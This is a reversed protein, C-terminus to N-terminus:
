AIGRQARCRLVRLGLLGVAGLSLLALTSPEPVCAPTRCDGIQSLSALIPAGVTTEMGWGLIELGNRNGTENVKVFGNRGDLQFGLYRIGVVINWAWGSGGVGHGDIDVVSAPLPFDGSNPPGSVPNTDSTLLVDPATLYTADIIEGEEWGNSGDGADKDAPQASTGDFYGYVGNGTGTLVGFQTGSKDSGSNDDFINYRFFVSSSTVVGDTPASAVTSNGNSSDEVVLGLLGNAAAGASDPAGAMTPDIIAMNVGYAFYDTTVVIPSSETNYIIPAAQADTASGAATAAAAAATYGSVKKAFDNLRKAM